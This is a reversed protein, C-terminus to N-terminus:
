RTVFEWRSGYGFKCNRSSYKEGQTDMSRRDNRHHKSGNGLCKEHRSFFIENSFKVVVVYYSRPRRMLWKTSAEMLHTINKKPSPPPKSFEM